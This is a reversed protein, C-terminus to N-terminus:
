FKLIHAVLQSLLLVIIQLWGHCIVTATIEKECNAYGVAFETNFIM